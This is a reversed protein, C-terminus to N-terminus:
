IELNHASRRTKFDKNQETIGENEHEEYKGTFFSNIELSGCTTCWYNFLLKQSIGRYVESKLKYLNEKSEIPFFVTSCLFLLNTVCIAECFATLIVGDSCVSWSGHSNFHVNLHFTIQVISLQIWFVDTFTRKWTKSIPFRQTENCWERPAHPLREPQFSSPSHGTGHSEQGHLVNRPTHRHGSRVQLGESGLHEDHQPGCLVKSLGACRFASPSEYFWSSTPNSPLPLLFAGKPTPNHSIFWAGICVEANWKGSKNTEAEQVKLSPTSDATGTFPSQRKSGEGNAALPFGMAIPTPLAPSQSCISSCHYQQEKQVAWSFSAM